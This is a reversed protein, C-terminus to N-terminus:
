EGGNRLRRVPPADPKAPADSGPKDGSKPKESVPKDDEGAKKALVPDDAPLKAAAAKLEAEAKALAAELDPLAAKAKEGANKDATASRKAEDASKKAERQKQVSEARKKTLDDIQKDRRDAAEGRLNEGRLKEIQADIEEQQKKAAEVAATGEKVKAEAAAANKPRDGAASRAEEVKKRAATAVVSARQYAKRAEALGAALIEGDVRVLGNAKLHEAEDVWKGSVEMYGCNDLIRRAWANEPDQVLVREAHVKAQERLCNEYAWQALTCQEPVTDPTRAKREDYQQQAGPIEKRKLIDAKAYSADVLRVGGRVPHRSRLLVTDGDQVLEGRVTRGNALSLEVEAAMLSGLILSLLFVSRM